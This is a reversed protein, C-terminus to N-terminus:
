PSIGQNKIGSSGSRKEPDHFLRYRFLTDEGHCYICINKYSYTRLFSTQADGEINKYNGKKKIFASWQHANHCSPCSLNGVRALKGKNDFIPTYILAEKEFILKYERDEKEFRIVNEILKGVPHTAVAPIKNEASGGKSHCSTCLANLPHQNEAVPGYERAFLKLKNPSNHALHCASCTGSEDVTHGQLNKAEPATVSLDHDTGEVLDKDEHCIKCLDSSPANAKRLFSNVASGEVNKLFQHNVSGTHFPDWTHPEHCTLCAITEGSETGGEKNYLPLEKTIRDPLAINFGKSVINVPHDNEGTPKEKASGNKNHCGLCYQPLLDKDGSLERAWLKPGAANHPIHCAGCPGSAEATYGQINKAEPATLVLNHDYSLIQRKDRHCEVCLASTRSNSIRLFSNSADGEIDKGGRNDPFLPDWQHINHCTFCQVTGDPQPKGNQSFFPLKDTRNSRTGQPENDSAPESVADVDNPHSYQGIGKIESSIDGEPNEGHCSLCIRSAPNGPQITRAWLRYGASNHPVHCAGCPGSESVPQGKMNIEGSMTLAPDHQTGIITRQNHCAMCLQSESNDMVTLNRGKAGHVRHCTQCTVSDKKEAKVSGLEFMKEPIKLKDTHLPHGNTRKFDADDVHCAECMASDINLMRLFSNPGAIEEDPATGPELAQVSHPTHCTGCYIEGKNSLTFEDPIRINESLKKFTSHNNGKWVTHRSDLVYGDHCSYCIEESSVIGQTDKMLVNGPQWKILTEKETRFDDLWMVHCMACEKKSSKELAALADPCELMMFLCLVMFIHFAPSTMSLM